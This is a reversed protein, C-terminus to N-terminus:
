SNSSVYTLNLDWLSIGNTESTDSVEALSFQSVGSSIKDQLDKLADEKAKKEIAVKQSHKYALTSGAGIIGLTAIVGLTIWLKKHSKKPPEQQPNKFPLGGGQNFNSNFGGGQFGGQPNPNSGFGGQNNSKPKSSGDGFLDVQDNM